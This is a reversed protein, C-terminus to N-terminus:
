ASNGAQLWVIDAGVQKLKGLFEVAVVFVVLHNAARLLGVPGTQYSGICARKFSAQSGQTKLRRVPQLYIISIYVICTHYATHM